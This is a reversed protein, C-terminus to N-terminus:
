AFPTSRAEEPCDGSLGNLRGSHRPAVADLRALHDFLPYSPRPVLVDDGPDALLKFLLSYAESTSTTLIIQQPSVEV